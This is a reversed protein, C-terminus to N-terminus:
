CAFPTPYDRRTLGQLSITRSSYLLWSVGDVLGDLVKWGPVAPDAEAEQGRVYITPADPSARGTCECKMRLRISM